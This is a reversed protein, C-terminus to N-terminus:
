FSQRWVPQYNGSHAKPAQLLTFFISLFAYSDPPFPQVLDHFSCRFSIEKPTECATQKEVRYESKSISIYPVASSDDPRMQSMPSYAM